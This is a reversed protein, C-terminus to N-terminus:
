IGYIIQKIAYVFYVIIMCVGLIVPWHLLIKFSFKQKPISTTTPKTTKFIYILAGAMVIGAIIALCLYQLIDTKTIQEYFDTQSPKTFFLVIVGVANNVFHVIIASYISNTRYVMVGLMIGLLLPFIFNTLSFHLIAFFVASIVVGFRIGYGEYGRLLIGRCLLEEFIAPLVAIIVIMYFLEMYNSPITIPQQPVKGLFQLLFIFLTNIFSGVIQGCIGLIGAAIIHGTKPKSLRLVKKYNQKTITFYFAMPLFVACIQILPSFYFDLIKNENGQRTFYVLSFIIASFIINLIILSLVSIIFIYNAHKYEVLINTNGQNNITEKKVEM